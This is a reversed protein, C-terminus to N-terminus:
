PEYLDILGARSMREFDADLSWVLSGTESALAGILLDGVGFRQGARAARELWGDIVHWTEECPYIVPLASLVRRLRPFDRKSAGALIEIRVLVPLSVEDADLLASLVRAEDGTGDRLAAVWVSTDVVIM